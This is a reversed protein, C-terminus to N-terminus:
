AVTHVVIGSESAFSDICFDQETESFSDLDECYVLERGINLDNDGRALVRGARLRRYGSKVIVDLASFDVFFSKGERADKDGIRTM